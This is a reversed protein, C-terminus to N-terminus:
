KRETEVVVVQGLSGDEKQRYWQLIKTGRSGVKGVVVWKGSLM